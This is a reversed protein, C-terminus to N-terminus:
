MQFLSLSGPLKGFRCGVFRVNEFQYFASMKLNATCSNQCNQCYDTLGCSRTAARRELCHNAEYRVPLIVALIQAPAAFGVVGAQVALEVFLIASLKTSERIM